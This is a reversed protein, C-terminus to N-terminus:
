PAGPAEGAPAAQTGFVTTDASSCPRSSRSAVPQARKGRHASGAGVGTCGAETDANQERFGAAGEECAAGPLSEPAGVLSPRVCSRIPCKSTPAEAASAATRSPRLGEGPAWSRRPARRSRRPRFDGRSTSGPRGSSVRCSQLRGCVHSAAVFGPSPRFARARGGTRRLAAPHPAPLLGRLAGRVGAPPSGAIVAAIIIIAAPSTSGAGQSFTSSSLFYGTLWKKPSRGGLRSSEPGSQVGKEASLTFDVSAEVKSQPASPGTDGDRLHSLLVRFSIAPLYVCRGERGERGAVAPGM